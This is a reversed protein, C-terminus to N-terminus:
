DEYIRQIAKKDKPLIFSLSFLLRYDPTRNKINFGAGITTFINDTTAIRYGFRWELLEIKNKYYNKKGAMEAILKSNHTVALEAGLNLSHEDKLLSNGPKSYLMNLHGKFPGIKKTLLLGGGWAGNTSFVEKGSDPSVNLMYAVSPRYIGDDVVRHKVAFNADEFGDMSHEWDAVYPITINIEFKDHLGYALQFLTRYFDPEKSKEFTLGFGVKNQKLSEASFTSFVGYPSLPQIGKVEFAFAHAPILLCSLVFFTFFSLRLGAKIIIVSLLDSKLAKLPLQRMALSFILFM